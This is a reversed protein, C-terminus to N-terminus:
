SSRPDIRERGLAHREVAGILAGAAGRSKPRCPSAGTPRARDDAAADRLRLNM